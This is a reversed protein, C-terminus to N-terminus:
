WYDDTTVRMEPLFATQKFIDNKYLLSLRVSFGAVDYGLAVNVIDDPQDILRDRYTSYVYSVKQAPFGWEDEIWETKTETRPYTSESFIHTYNTNLVLGRLVGPLYWFNTQWDLEIGWLDVMEQNNVPFSTFFGQTFAPLNLAAPDTIVTTSNQYMFDQIKKYFGGVTFLGIHNEYVSAYVDYNQSLAPKINLNNMRVSKTSIDQTPVLWRYDPRNLSHTYALRVDFWQFPKARLHIQPLWFENNRKSNAPEHPYVTSGWGGRSDGSVGNYETWVKEYRVGPIFQILSGYKFDAMIYGAAYRESGSYDDITSVYVHEEGNGNLTSIRAVEWMLNKDATIGFQYNGQMFNDVTYDGLFFQFPFATHTDYESPGGMLLRWVDRKYAASHPYRFGDQPATFFSYDYNRDQFRYKGGFLLTGSVKKALTFQLQFDSKLAAAYEKNYYVSSNVARLFMNDINNMTYSYLESPQASLDLDATFAQVEEADWLVNEPSHNESFTYSLNTNIKFPGWSQEHELVSTLSTLKNDGDSGGLHRIRHYLDYNDSYQTGNTLAHSFFNTLGINGHPLDYDIVVTGGYRQKSRIIDDQNFSTIEIKNVEGATIAPTSYGAGISQSSRNRREIDIQALVGLRNSFFRNSIGGVLKYDQYSNRLQNHGGQFIVDQKFGPKARKIRFGVTGGMADADQDATLAKMVEIGELMYPSIMSLNVGRDGSETSAMKVDNIQITNFKPSLGRIIVHTGEGGSRSLSVGPLRAVSEAANADPIEQIRASSVVNVISRAALQKNIAEFQGEAQATVVISEGELPIFDLRVDKQLKQNITVTFSIRVKKFGIYNVILHFSGPPIGHIEYKGDSDTAAGLGTGEVFVNAGPLPKETQSDVVMGSISANAAFCIQPLLLGIALILLLTKPTSMVCSEKAFVRIHNKHQGDFIWIMSA